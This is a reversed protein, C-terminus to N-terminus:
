LQQKYTLAVDLIRDGFENREGFKYVKHVKGYNIRDTGIYCDLLVVAKLNHNIHASGRPVLHADDASICPPWHVQTMLLVPCASVM